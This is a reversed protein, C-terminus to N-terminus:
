QPRRGSVRRLAGTLGVHLVAHAAERRHRPELYPVLDLRGRDYARHHLRCLPVVCDPHDCGGLSRPVVHAPDIRNTVGCVICPQDAVKDRQADSAALSPSRELPARRRLRTTTRLASTRRLPSRRRPPTRKM